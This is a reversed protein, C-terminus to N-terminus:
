MLTLSDFVFRAVGAVWGFELWNLGTTEKSPKESVPLDSRAFLDHEIRKVRVRRLDRGLVKVLLHLEQSM